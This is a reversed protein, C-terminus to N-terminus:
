LKFTPKFSLECGLSEKFSCLGASPIGRSSSPGIDVREYGAARYHDTVVRALLNMPRLHSFGPRDGWYIVQAIGPAVTYVIAAAVDVEAATATDKAATVDVDKPATVDQQELQLLFCDIDVIEGTLQLAQLSMALPYGHSRRNAEIVAYARPLPAPFMTSFQQRSATNYNKRANHELGAIFDPYRRLPYDYNFDAWILSGADLFAGCLRPTMEPDYIAPPPTIQMPLDLERLKRAFEMCTDLSQPRNYYIEGFPASFPSHWIGDRLGLIIGLRFKGKSDTLEIAKLDSIKPANLEIFPRNGYVFKPNAAHRFFTDISVINLEMNIVNIERLYM